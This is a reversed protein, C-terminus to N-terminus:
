FAFVAELVKSILGKTNARKLEGEHTRLIELRSIQTSLITNVPSVDDSRCVGTVRMVSIEDDTQISTRAELVLNGNPLVEVVEATLRDTIEDERNYEGEGEFEKNFDLNVEPLGTTRGADIQLQLCTLCIWVRGRRSRAM